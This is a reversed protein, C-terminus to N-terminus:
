AVEMGQPFLRDMYLEDTFARQAPDVEQRILRLYRNAERTGDSWEWLEGTESYSLAELGGEIVEVSDTWFLIAEDALGPEQGPLLPDLVLQALELTGTDRWDIVYVRGVMFFASAVEAGNSWREFLHVSAGDPLAEDLYKQLEVRDRYFDVM